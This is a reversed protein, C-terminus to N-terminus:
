FHAVSLVLALETLPLFFASHLIFFRSSLLRFDSALIIFSLRQIQKL